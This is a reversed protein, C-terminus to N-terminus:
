YSAEKDSMPFQNGARIPFFLTKLHSPAPHSISLFHTGIVFMFLELDCGPCPLTPVRAESQLCEALLEKWEFARAM